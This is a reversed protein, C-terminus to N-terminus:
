RQLRYYAPVILSRKFAAVRREQEFRKANRRVSLADCARVRYYYTGNGRGSLPVSLATGSYAVTQGSFSSNTAEYLEYGTVTGSATGWSITYSGTTSNPPVSISAPAGPAILRTVDVRNGASDLKYNTQSSDTHIVRRLRGADDYQYQIDAASCWVALLLLAGAGLASV